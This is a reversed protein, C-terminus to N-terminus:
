KLADNLDKELSDFSSDVDKTFNNWTASAQTQLGDLKTKLTAHRVHLAAATEKSKADAKKDLEAIRAEFKTMRDKTTTAYATRAAVLEAEAMGKEGQQVAVDIQKDAVDKQQDAVDKKAEALDKKQENVNDTAKAVSEAANDTAEKKKCGTAAGVLFTASIISTWIISRM